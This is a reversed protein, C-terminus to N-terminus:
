LMTPVRVEEIRVADFLQVALSSGEEKVIFHAEGSLRPVVRLRQSCTRLSQELPTAPQDKSRAVLVTGFTSAM